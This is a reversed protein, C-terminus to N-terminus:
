VVSKRDKLRAHPDVGTSYVDNSSTPATPAPAAIPTPASPTPPSPPPATEPAAIEELSPDVTVAVKAHQALASSLSNIISDRARTEIFDKAFESPAALLVTDDIIASPKTLRVVALQVGSLEGRDTLIEVARDWGVGLAGPDLSQEPVVGGPSFPM